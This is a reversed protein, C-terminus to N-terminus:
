DEKTPTPATPTAATPTAAPGGFRGVLEAFEAAFRESDSRALGGAEVVTRGGHEADAAPRARVWCRRRRVRLSLLLGAVILAAAGLMLKKGPDHAVQFTAWQDVAVFSVRSGDPLRWSEGPSLEANGIHALSAVPLSYVSQPSRDLGLDGRWAALLLVPDRPAPYSSDPGAPTSVFTPYFFGTLGLQHPLGDPVKVVGHSAFMSTDPLFPTDRDYVLRGHPDRVQIHLAYGHGVLYVNAGTAHLPHNVQVDSTTAAGGPHSQYRVHADFTEPTGDPQYGATFKELTFSFPALSSDSYLRSPQFIDYSSRVNAFAQGQVVLVTGKYGFLGGLAIGALLAVLSVHFLLNGTERLYGKEAAVTVAGDPEPHVDTRWRLSRLLEGCGAAVDAADAQTGWQQSVTLRLLNRPAHPPRRRLARAHLRIRPVLCGILSIFLLLYIAAFWPAAFVDFLSLRDLFPGLHPHATIFDDVKVPNLGRQPLVTGPIAGLALLSLLLLATRMSTLRRWGYRATRAFGRAPHQPPAPATSLATAEDSTSAVASDALTADALDTM